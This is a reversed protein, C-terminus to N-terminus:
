ACAVFGDTKLTDILKMTPVDVIAIGSPRLSVYAREGDDRFVSCVPAGVSGLLLSGVM